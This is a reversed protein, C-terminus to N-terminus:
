NLHNSYHEDFHIGIVYDHDYDGRGGDGDGDGHDYDHDYERCIEGILFHVCKVFHPSVLFIVLFNM